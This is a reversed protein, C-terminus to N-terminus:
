ECPLQTKNTINLSKKFKTFNTFKTFHQIVFFYTYLIYTMYFTYLCTSRFEIFNTDHVQAEIRICKGKLNTYQCTLM